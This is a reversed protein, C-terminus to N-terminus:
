LAAALSARLGHFRWPLRARDAISIYAANRM